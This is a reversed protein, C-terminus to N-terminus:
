GAWAGSELDRGRGRFGSDGGGVGDGGGFYAGVDVFGDGEREFLLAAHRM